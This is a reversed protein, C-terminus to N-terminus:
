KKKRRKKKNKQKPQFTQGIGTLNDNGRIGNQNEVNHIGGYGNHVREPVAGVQGGGGIHHHILKDGVYDVYQPFYYAFQM